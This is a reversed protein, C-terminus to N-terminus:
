VVRPDSFPFRSVLAAPSVTNRLHEFGTLEWVKWARVRQPAPIRRTVRYIQSRLALGYFSDILKFLDLTDMHADQLSFHPLYDSHLLLTVRWTHM